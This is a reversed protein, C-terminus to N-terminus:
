DQHSRDSCMWVLKGLLDAIPELSYDKMDVTMQNTELKLFRWLLGSSVCGYIPKPEEGANQNFQQAAVMEAM